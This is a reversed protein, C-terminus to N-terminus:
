TTFKVFTRFDRILIEEAHKKDEETGSTQARWNALAAKEFARGQMSTRVDVYIFFLGLETKKIAVELVVGVLYSVIPNVLRWSVFAFEKVLYEMVFKKGATIAASKIAEVYQDRSNM